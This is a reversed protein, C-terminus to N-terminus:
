LAGKLQQLQEVFADFNILVKHELAICPIKGQKILQRLAYESIMGTKAVQRVTMMKPIKTEGNM